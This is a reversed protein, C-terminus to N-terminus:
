KWRPDFLIQQLTKKKLLIEHVTEWRQEEYKKMESSKKKMGLLHRLMNFMEDIASFSSLQGVTLSILQYGSLTIAAARRKDFEHQEKQLHSLNSDYEVVIKQDEWVMDGRIQRINMQKSVTSSLRLKKNMAPKELAYGGRYLPLSSLVALSVEMPSNCNDVIYHLATNATKVGRMGGASQLFRQIKKTSTVPIRSRQQMANTKDFVYIACLMCGIRVVEYFPLVSAAFLFCYEPSSVLVTEGFHDTLEVFSNSPLSAPYSFLHYSENEKRKKKRPAMLRLPMTLHYERALKESQRKSISFSFDASLDVAEKGFLFDNKDTGDLWFELASYNIIPIIM